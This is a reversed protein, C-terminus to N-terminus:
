KEYTLIKKLDLLIILAGEVKYVGKIFERIKPDVTKPKEEFASEAVEMVDMIQDVLLSFLSGDHKVIINMYNDYETQEMGFLERMNISTVIQGRLNILGEVYSPSLPVNTLHQAKIIEQVELVSVAYQYDGIKFGCLSNTDTKINIIQEAASM